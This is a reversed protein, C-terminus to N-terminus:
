GLNGRTQGRHPFKREPMSQRLRDEIFKIAKDGIITLLVAIHLGDKNIYKAGFDLEGILDLGVDRVIPPMSELFLQSEDISYTPIKISRKKDKDLM